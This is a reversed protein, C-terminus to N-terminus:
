ACNGVEIINEVTKKISERIRDAASRVNDALRTELLYYNFGVVVPEGKPQKAV